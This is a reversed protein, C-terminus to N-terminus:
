WYMDIFPICIDGEAISDGVKKEIATFIGMGANPLTSQALYLGCVDPKCPDEVTCEKKAAALTALLLISKMIRM